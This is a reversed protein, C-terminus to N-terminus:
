PCVQVSFTGAATGADVPPMTAVSLTATYSGALVGGAVPQLTLTGSTALQLPALYGGDGVLALSAGAGGDRPAGLVFQGGDISASNYVTIVVAELFPQGADQSCPNPCPRPSTEWSSESREDM